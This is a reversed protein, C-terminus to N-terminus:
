WSLEYVPRVLDNMEKPHSLEFRDMFIYAQPSESEFLCNISKKFKFNKSTPISGPVDWDRTSEALWGDPITFFLWFIYVSSGSILELCPLHQNINSQCFLLGM